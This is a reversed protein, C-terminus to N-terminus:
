GGVTLVDSVSIAPREGGVVLEMASPRDGARPPFPRGPKSCSSAHSRARSVIGTPGSNQTM